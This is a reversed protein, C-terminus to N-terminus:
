SKSSKYKKFFYKADSAAKEKTEKDRTVNALAQLARGAALSDGKYAILILGRRTKEPQDKHWGTDVASPRYWKETTTKSKKSKCPM